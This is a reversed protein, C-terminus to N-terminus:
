FEQVPINSLMHRHEDQTESTSKIETKDCSNGEGLYFKCNEVQVNDCLEFLIQCLTMFRGPIKSLM